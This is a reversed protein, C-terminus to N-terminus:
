RNGSLLRKSSGCGGFILWFLFRIGLVSTVFGDTHMRIVTGLFRHIVRIDDLGFYVNNVFTLEPRLYTFEPNHNGVVLLEAM